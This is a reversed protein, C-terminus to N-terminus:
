KGNVTSCEIPQLTISADFTIDNKSSFVLRNRQEKMSGNGPLLINGKVLFAVQRVSRMGESLFTYDALLTDKRLMGKFTGKNKDKEYLNYILTGSALSDKLILKMSITDRNETYAFCYTGNNLDIMKVSDVSQVTTDPMNKSVEVSDNLKINGPQNRCAPLSIIIVALSIIYKM